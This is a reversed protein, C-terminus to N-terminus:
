GKKVTINTNGKKKLFKKYSSVKKKSVKIILKKNTGKLANKGVSKSTLKSSKITITKLNKDGYFASSGITKLFTSKLTVTKLKTCKKFANKGISTVNKGVIVKTLKKNNALANPDISTVKYTYGDINVSAPITISTKTKNTPKLYAAEKQKASSKTVKYTGASVTKTTGVSPLISEADTPPQPSNEPQKQPSSPQEVSPKEEKIGTDKLSFQLHSPIVDLGIRENEHESLIIREKNNGAIDTTWIQSIGFIEIEDLDNNWFISLFDELKKEIIYGDETEAWNSKDMYIAGWLSDWMNDTKNFGAFLIHIGDVGSLEDKVPVHIRIIDGDFNVKIKEVDVIPAESDEVLGEIQPNLSSLDQIWGLSDWVNGDSYYINVEYIGNYGATPVTFSFVYYGDEDLTWNYIDEWHNNPYVLMLELDSYKFDDRFKLKWTVTEGPGANKPFVSCKEIDLLVEAESLRGEFSVTGAYSWLDSSSTDLHLAPCVATWCDDVSCGGSVEGTYHVYDGSFTKDEEEQWPQSRLWWEGHETDYGSGCEAAYSSNKRRRAEDLFDYAPIFGYARNRVEDDSLLFVKDKTDNGIEGGVTNVVTTLKIAEQEAGTFAKDIFNDGRCDMGNVNNEGSYGNLWSRLTCNEWTVYTNTINYPQCDLNCDAVLFVDNEDISLVRWKILESTKGTADSQPYRGFYICDYTVDGNADIRPNSLTTALVEPIQKTPIVISLSVFLIITLFVTVVRKAVTSKKNSNILAKLKMRERVKM